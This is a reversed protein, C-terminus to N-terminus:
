HELTFRRSLCRLCAPPGESSTENEGRSIPLQLSACFSMSSDKMPQFCNIQFAKVRIFLRKSLTTTWDKIVEKM